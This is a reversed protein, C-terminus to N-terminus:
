NGIKKTSQAINWIFPNKKMIKYDYFGLLRSYIELLIMIFIWSNKKVDPSIKKLVCKAILLNNSTSVNYEFNEKLWKHGAYIRRRQKVFDRITEPGKNKIIAEPAYKIFLKKKIIEIEISAEDVSSEKPIKNFVKRFAIMEGCKPSIMAIEHHLKWFLNIIFGMLTNKSNIPVPHCGTMGVTPDLLPLCLNEITNPFCIIDGSGIVCIKNKSINLFLNIASSKGERNKQKILKIFGNSKNEFNSVIEDTKDTCCSSIVIIEDITIANTQQLLLSELLKKINEGENYAIIGISIKLKENLSKNEM